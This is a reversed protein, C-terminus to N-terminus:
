FEMLDRELANARSEFPRIGIPVTTIPQAFSNITGGAGPSDNQSEEDGTNEILTFRGVLSRLKDAQLALSQSTFTLEETQNANTQVVQDMQGVVGNVQEIGSAQERSALAIEDILGTM